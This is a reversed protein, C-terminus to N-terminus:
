PRHEVEVSKFNCGCEFCKHYRIPPTSCYVPANKSWCKPCRIPIYDVAYLFDDPNPPKIGPLTVDRQASEPKIWGAKREMWAAM